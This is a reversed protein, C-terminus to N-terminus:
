LSGAVFDEDSAAEEAESMVPLEYTTNELIYEATGSIDKLNFLAQLPLKIGLERKLKSVLMVALLSHGGLSFFDDNIGITEAEIQLIGAWISVLKEELVNRPAVYVQGSALNINMKELSQRDVKGNALLPIQELNVFAMPVMYEPLTQLLYEKLVENDLVQAPDHPVYFAILQKNVVDGNDQNQVVVVSNAVDEHQALVAEIEDLEIRFGRIKVQTDIRGLYEISGDDLWRALDGTKYMRGSSKFPDSVFKEETLEPRNLYGRAVGDGAIHLEGPVGVPSPAGSRDLIYVQSNHLPRGLAISTVNDTNDATLPDSSIKSITTETPGYNNFVQCAPNLKNVLDVIPKTLVEGAFILAKEVQVIQTDSVKFMEFHSPTIKMCDIPNAEMYSHLETPNNVYDDSFLTLSKGFLMPVYLAINGLDSAFTSVAAFTECQQLSMREVVSYCYDVVMSHEIMVGKPQGTSGSTYIVYALNDPQVRPELALGNELIHAVCEHELCGNEDLVVIQTDPTVLSQVKDKFQAQTVVIQTQSDELMYTLRETPYAPDMPVYAGGAQLIGMLGVMTALSREVCLGVLNDPQIGQSQLYIALELSQKQLQQFTLQKDGDEAAEILAVQNPHKYAQQAFLQHICLDKPYALHNDNNPALLTQQEKEGVYNFSEITATPEAVIAHCLTKFHTVMRSITQQKFLATKYVIMGELGNDTETFHLILDFRSFNLELPFDQIDNDSLDMAVNHLVFMVQFLPSIGVTREPQVLDVIKEFPTDQYEYAELCTEKVQALLSAFTDDSVVQDRYVLTNAFMGILDATEEHQRNAISGGFCIDEQGTYRHLLVKFAAQLTMYLTAGHAETLKNLAQALEADIHFVETAGDFNPTKPRPYDTALNLREPVGELKGRWYELQRELLGSEEMFQRQWASYDLYQIPLKSLVPEKGQEFAAMIQRFEKIIVNMSWGDSIIHHMNLLLVHEVDSQKIILGRILPGQALDFPTSADQQCLKQTEQLRANQDGLHSLDISALEFDFPALIVQQVKGDVSPYLTRLSEHRAIILSIAQEVQQIDLPHADDSKITVAGPINYGASDPDLQDIFWLREQVYSLPLNQNSHKALDARDLPKIQPLARKTSNEVKASLLAVTDCEFLVKLPVEIRFQARVKSVVQTALLSHGGLEFFSDNVGIKEAPLDLVTAWINVLEAENENRPAQYCQTKAFSFDIEALAKRNVKGNGTLPISSLSVWATPIMHEPLEQRLSLKFVNIDLEELQTDTSAHAVYFAVLQKTDGEGKAIVVCEKLESYQELRAEIEGLEIRFGRIKVQHDIRGIFELSGALSETNPMWRVLDGTKYLRASPDDSYPNPIFREKTLEPQNLYGRALGDGGIYLEGAVGIPTPKLQQDLVYMQTNSIPRGIPVFNLTDEECRWHTVDISAETPGYLNFLKTSAPKVRMFENVLAKPLAEGSCFVYRVSTLDSWSEAALMNSLMSPVFHLISVAQRKIVSTLYAPDKHGEPKAVVLKAGYALPWFFEWVSVDFSYPTKQLVCDEARLQYESHMWELRNMLGQHTSEVGKPQGTSGSTYIVYALNHPQLEISAKEINDMPYQSFTDFEDLTVIQQASDCVQRLHSQTLVITAGSDQLMYALRDAPYSPDLPVYAGGAKIIGLIGIVMELSREACLGVLSDTKVGQAMLYHAVQNAKANFAQYTLSEETQEGTEFTVAIADPTLEVQAEFLEHICKDKPYDVATNNWELLQHLENKAVLIPLESLTNCQENLFSKLIMEFHVLMQKITAEEFQEAYYGLKFNLQTHLDTQNPLVILTLAYNTQDFACVDSVQLDSGVAAKEMEFDIPYNEFVVLTDFLGKERQEKTNVASLKQIESLPLFGNEVRDISAMHMGRLWAGLEQEPNIDVVVPLSNIFLGVMDEVGGLEAPRGSITEGFVLQQDGSYHHLLYAWAAQVLTNLTVQHLSAASQLQKSLEPTLKLWRERSGKSHSDIVKGTNIHNPSDFNALLEEWYACAKEADQETLWQIYDEYPRAKPLTSALTSVSVPTEAGQNALEYLAIAEKFVLPFSWGDALAHHSTWILCHKDKSLKILTIRMLPAQKLDFGQIKDQQLFQELRLQQETDSLTSWDIENLDLHTTALVIQHTHNDSFVTRFVDHRSVVADLASKFATRELHGNLNLSFQSVYAQADLSSFYLMGQQMGTTPYLNELMPYSDFVEELQAQTVNALPFDQPRVCEYFFKRRMQCENLSSPQVDEHSAKWQEFRQSLSVRQAAEDLSQQTSSPTQLTVLPALKEITQCEFIQRTTFVLGDKAARTVAQISLISDGGIAFFNDTIGVQSVKLLEQWLACLQQEVETKPAVYELTLQAPLERNQLRDRDIKGNPTRPMDDIGIFVSPIKYSLLTNSLYARLEASLLADSNEENLKADTTRSPVVYAVLQKSNEASGISKALVVVESVQRHTAIAAEIEGLEVRFGRVKLQHDQRGLFELYGPEGAENPTCRVLDGTKYIRKTRDFPNPVFRQKTLEQSNLYGRALADGGIYLEGGVGLPCLQQADDLVFLESHPAAKGIPVAGSVHESCDFYSSWVCGETPGYENILKIESWKPHSQHQEVLSQECAEGAVIVMKLAPGTNLDASLMNQYVSPLTVFHSIEERVIIQEFYPLDVGNKIDLICLKGGSTLTWFIGTISGDFAFSFFLAFSSPVQPYLDFRAQTSRALSGHEIAVGKPLGTSGSTYIVYALHNLTLGLQQRDINDEAYCGLFGDWMEEDLPLIELESLPLESLLESSTLVIEIDSDSIIHEIHSEPYDPDIPVYAGGAKLIGWIGIVMELSREVCLGVLSDPKVGKDILYNAVQNAKRNLEDYTMRENSFPSENFVAAINDPNIAVQEEFLDLVSTVQTAPALAHPAGELDSSWKSWDLLQAKEDGSICPLTNISSEPQAIIGELLVEFHKAMRTITSMDFLATAFEWDLRLGQAEGNEALEYIDLSLDHLAVSHPQEIKHASVGPLDFWKQENNQLALKVQFLPSYSLSREQKLEDVLKEFPLQTYEYTDLLSEKSRQLLEVFQPNGSLDNQLVVSNTFFGVLPALEAQDRNAVPAGIVINEIDAPNGGKDSHRSLLIALASQLVMFPTTDTAKALRYVGEQITPDITQLYHAGKYDQVPPRARDTALNHVEPLDELRTKWFELQSELMQGQLQEKQWHAYDSYQITMEPLTSEPELYFHNFEDFIISVSWGDVAIHHMTVLLVHDDDALKLLKTRLMLDRDLAFPLSSEENIRTRIAAVQEHAALSSLDFVPTTLEWNTEVVQTPEGTESTQITTRLVQHREVISRFASSVAELDLDGTLRFAQCMVNQNTGSEIQEILWVRQQAFSLPAPEIREVSVIQTVQSAVSDDIFGALKQVTPLTFIDRISIEIQWTERILSVLRAALLSHGGVHFFNSTTSIGSTGETDLNLLGQWIHGLQEETETKPATYSDEITFNPKPLALRNIKGNPTLPIENLLVYRSPLMYTPLRAELHATLVQKLAEEQEDFEGIVYAVIHASDDATWVHAVTDKVQPHQLLGSEIEGLEIRHGRVKVQQDLRRMYELTGDPQWRVLDGTKYLRADGDESFPNRVFREATLEPLNLYGRAVGAGGIYLEGAVGVPVPALNSDLVYFQTHAIPKGLSIRSEILSVSSWVATETPGYMNWLEVTGRSLLADKLEASLMEGGCLAKIPSQPQWDNSVLMKWTAPTAQMCTVHHTVMLKTLADPDQVQESSAMVVTGGSMLPLYLELVHIDFSLSTVALLTDDSTLGPQVQMSNLFNTVNRHELMVGKPKGTSGSTYIVYALNSASLGLDNKDLDGHEFQRLEESICEDDLCITQSVELHGCLHTQTIVWQLGSDEVMHTLRAKPYTPDMPLYAGGAKMIALVSVVMDVSREVCVGVLTESRVGQAVLYRALQNARQNLQAYSFAQGEFVVAIADPNLAVQAEFLEHVSKDQSEPKCTDNWQTLLATAHHENQLPLESIRSKPSQVISQLLVEFHGLMREITTRSFLDSAYQLEMDLGNESELLTLTLDYQSVAQNSELQQSELGSLNLPTMEQNQLILMVQFLPSHSLNREPQLANVLKEFPLQQHAYAAFTREKSQALLEVFSPDASLDSRFVLNNIFLGILPSLESQERNAVPSGIVIDTEGSYRSLFSAFAANMLMFFTAGHKQALQHLADQLEASVRHSVSGGKFSQTAPRPNDLALGHVAPLDSLHQQWYSLHEKLVEEKLTNRQWHAYDRYQIALPDLPDNAGETYANYLANLEKTLVGLSWGDTAIHHTTVLLIHSQAGLKLLTVRLMVDKTLNFIRHAEALRLEAIRQEQESQTLETLDIVPLDIETAAQVWQVVQGNEECYTTRLAEHRDIITTFTRQLHAVNIEGYLKFSFPLNYQAQTKEIQNVLWMREQAFSPLDADRVPVIEPTNAPTASEIVKALKRITNNTFFDRISIEVQWQKQIKSILTTALLSHGGLSLFNDEVGISDIGFVDRWLACLQAENESLTPQETPESTIGGIFGEQASCLADLDKGLYRKKSLARQIKGSSTRNIRGAKMFVIDELVVEFQEFIASKITESALQYDFEGMEQRSVELLLVAKGNFEFAAAGNQNLGPYARYALKEFDQPYYNRGKIIMVDKIRGSIYLEGQYIFGLDGTRLYSADDDQLRAGFSANTKEEDNWYGKALSPGAFWIEGVEGDALEVMTDPSVIKLHHEPQVHGHAILIQQKADDQSLEAQGKQLGESGFANATYPAAHVGGCIFVTAEAMGYAPYVASEKFGVRSFRECFRALTDADLPEAANFAIRWSSLDLNAMQHPKIRELCHDFAFNPAGGITGKYESIASLWTLPNKIFRVPSMLVSHAGLFIPLLLTNVLGLDHFLPLWNCFVDNESCLTGQQLTKLNAVINGHTIVVGKPTGTSGSTYQLFAIDDAKPFASLALASGNSLQEFGLVPLPALEGELQPKLMGNTLVLNAKCDNIVTLVRGAHKKSQPPYLPVAVMGAYLCGLFAQIYELGPPYLLVVRSGPEVEAKLACAISAAKQHLESFSIQNKEGSDEIFTFAKNDIKSKAHVALYDYITEMM